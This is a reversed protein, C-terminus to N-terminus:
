TAVRGRVAWARARLAIRGWPLTARLRERLAERRAKDLTAVYGPAPAQGSLFPTWLDDFDRFVTPVDIARVEVEGLVTGFLAALPEPRCLGFRVGEDLEKAAPDLAVAADWFRRLLQMGEAYDWVYAAVLGTSVRAMEAVARAPDPVFNLTLASVVADFDSPVDPPFSQADGVVVRVRPDGGFREAVHRVFDPSRDLGFVASPEARALIVDIVAGTGCGVDLWRRGPPVALWDLLAHAVPRSWRGIFGEYSSPDAFRDPM